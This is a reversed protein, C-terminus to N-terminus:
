RTERRCGGFWGTRAVVLNGTGLGNPPELDKGKLSCGVGAAILGVLACEGTDERENKM